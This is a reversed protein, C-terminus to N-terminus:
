MAWLPENLTQCGRNLLFSLDHPLLQLIRTKLIATLNTKSNHNLRADPYHRPLCRPFKLCEDGPHHPFEWYLWRCLEVAKLRPVSSFAPSPSYERDGECCLIPPPSKWTPFESQGSSEWPLELEQEQQGLVATHRLTNILIRLLSEWWDWSQEQLCNRSCFQNVQVCILCKCITLLFQEQLLPWM